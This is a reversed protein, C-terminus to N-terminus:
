AKSSRRGLLTSTRTRRKKKAEPAQGQKRMARTRETVTDEYQAVLDKFRQHAAIHQQLVPVEDRPVYETLNRGAVRRQLNYYPGDPGQRIVSLHGREMVQIASIENLLEQAASNAEM